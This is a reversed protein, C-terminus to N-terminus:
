DEKKDSILLKFEHLDIHGDKNIDFSDFASKMNQDSLFLNVDTLALIFEEYQIEGDQDIIDAGKLVDIIAEGSEIDFLKKKIEILTITNSNDDDM